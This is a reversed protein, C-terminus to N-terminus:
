RPSSSDWFKRGDDYMWHTVEEAVLYDPFIGQGTYANMSLITLESGSVGRATLDTLLVRKGVWPNDLIIGKMAETVLAAQDESGAGVFLNLRRKSWGLLWCIERATDHTKDCRTTAMGSRSRDETTSARVDALHDVAGASRFAREWQWREAIKRFPKKRPQADVVVHDLFSLYGRESRNLTALAYSKEILSAADKM